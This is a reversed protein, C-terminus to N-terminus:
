QRENLGGNEDDHADDDNENEDRQVQGNERQSLGATLSSLGGHGVCRQRRQGGNRKGGAWQSGALVLSGLSFGQCAAIVGLENVQFVEFNLVVQQAGNGHFQHEAIIEHGDFLHLVREGDGDRVGRAQHHEVLNGAEETM